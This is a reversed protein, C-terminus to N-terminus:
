HPAFLERVREAVPRVAAEVPATLSAGFGFETGCVALVVLRDPLRGLARGLAVATGLGVGHTGAAAPEETTASASLEFWAGPPRDPARVADIVVALATGTWLDLMRSAEGDTVRLDVGTLRGTLEAVVRPGVGDDRRYENGVGIVVRRQYAMSTV